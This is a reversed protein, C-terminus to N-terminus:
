RTVGVSDTLGPQHVGGWAIYVDSDVIASENIELPIGKSTSTSGFRLFVVGEATNTITMQSTLIEVLVYEGTRPINIDETLM